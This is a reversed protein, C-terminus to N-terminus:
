DLPKEVFDVKIFVTFFTESGIGTSHFLAPCQWARIPSGFSMMTSSGVAPRSGGFAVTEIVQETMQSFLSDDDERGM